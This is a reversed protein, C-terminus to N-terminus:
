AALKVHCSRYAPMHYSPTEETGRAAKQIDKIVSDCIDPDDIVSDDAFKDSKITAGPKVTAGPKIKSPFTM